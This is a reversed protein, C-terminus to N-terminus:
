HRRHARRYGWKKTGLQDREYDDTMDVGSFRGGSTVQDVLATSNVLTGNFLKLLFGSLESLTGELVTLAIGVDPRHSRMASVRRWIKAQTRSLSLASRSRPIVMSIARQFNSVGLYMTVTLKKKRVRIPIPLRIKNFFGELDDIGRSVTIKNLVHDSTGGLGITSDEDNGGTSTLELGTDGLVTLSSLM